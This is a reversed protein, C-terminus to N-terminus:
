YNNVIDHDKILIIKTSIKTSIIPLYCVNAQIRVNQILKNKRFCVFRPFLRKLLSILLYAM